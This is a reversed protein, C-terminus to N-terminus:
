VIQLKCCNFLSKIYMTHYFENKNAIDTRITNWTKRIASTSYIYIYVIFLAELSQAAIALRLSKCFCFYNRCILHIYITSDFESIELLDCRSGPWSTPNHIHSVYRQGYNPTQVGFACVLFFVVSLALKCSKKKDMKILKYAM